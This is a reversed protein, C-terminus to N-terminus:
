ADNLTAWPVFAEAADAAIAPLADATRVAPNLLVQELIDSM